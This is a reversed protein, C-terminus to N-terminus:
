ALSASSTPRGARAIAGDVEAEAAGGIRPGAAAAPDVLGALGAAGFQTSEDPGFLPEAVAVVDEVQGFLAPRRVRQIVGDTTEVVEGAVWAPHPQTEFHVELCAPQVQRAPWEHRGAPVATAM